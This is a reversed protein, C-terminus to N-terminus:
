QSASPRSANYAAVWQHSMTGFDATHMHTRGWLGLRALLVGAAVVGLAVILM